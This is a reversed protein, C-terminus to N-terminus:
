GETEMPWYIIIIIIGANRIKYLTGKLKDRLMAAKDCLFVVEVPV